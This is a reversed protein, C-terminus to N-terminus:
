GARPVEDLAPFARSSCNQRPCIRCSVGVPTVRSPEALDYGDSYVLRRAQDLDCGLGISMHKVDGNHRNEGKMLTRAICFFKGGEPMQSVQITIRGPQMFAEYVNWRPCAGGHRPIQIGSNSFRKSVNGAIDTRILHFPVGSAGPRQLTTLRHCIQEFSVNFRLSLRDVDYRSDEAAKLFPRYPMLIAGAVYSALASAGLREVSQHSFQASEVLTSIEFRAAQEGIVKAIAFLRSPIPLIDSVTLVARDPEFVTARDDLPGVSVSIGFVNLLYGSLRNVEPAGHGLDGIVRAAVDELPQFYNGNVQLFDSVQESALREQNAGDVQGSPNERVERFKDYLLVISRAVAPSSNAFERVDHNTVDVDGFLDDAFMEMLDGSLRQEDGSTLDGIELGFKQALTLLLPVTLKRRNHEILNLYSASIGLEQALRAQSLSKQRRLQRIRGGIQPIGDSM